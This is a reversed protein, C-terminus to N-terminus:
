FMTTRVSKVDQLDKLFNNKEYKLIQMGHPTNLDCCTLGDM